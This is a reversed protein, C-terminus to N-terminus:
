RWGRERQRRLHEIEAILRLHSNVAHVIFEKDIGNHCRGELINVYRRQEIKDNGIFPGITMPLGSFVEAYVPDGAMLWPLPTAAAGLEKGRNIIKDIDYM